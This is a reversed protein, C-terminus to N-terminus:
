VHSVKGFVVFDGLVGCVKRFVGLVGYFNIAMGEIQWWGKIPGLVQFWCIKVLKYVVNLVLTVVRCVEVIENIRSTWRLYISLAVFFLFIHLGEM